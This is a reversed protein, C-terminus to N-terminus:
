QPFNLVKKDRAFASIGKREAELEDASQVLKDFRIVRRDEIRDRSKGTKPFFLFQLRDGPSDKAIEFLLFCCQFGLAPLSDKDIFDDQDM